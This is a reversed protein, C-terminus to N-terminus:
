LKAHKGLYFGNRFEAVEKCDKPCGPSFDDERVSTEVDKVGAM